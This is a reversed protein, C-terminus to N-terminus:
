VLIASILFMLGVLAIIPQMTKQVTLYWDSPQPDEVEIVHRMSFIALPFMMDFIALLFLLVAITLLVPNGRIADYQHLAMGTIETATLTDRIDFYQAGTSTIRDDFVPEGNKNFLQGRLLNGDYVEKGNENTIHIPYNTNSDYVSSGLTVLYTRKEYGEMQYTISTVGGKPASVSINTKSENLLGIYFATGNEVSKTFFSGGFRMGVSFFFIFYFVFFIAIVAGAIVSQKKHLRVFDRLNM